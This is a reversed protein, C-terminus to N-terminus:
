FMYNKDLIDFNTEIKSCFRFYKAELLSMYDMSQNFQHLLLISLQIVM